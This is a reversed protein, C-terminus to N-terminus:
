SSKKESKEKFGTFIEGKPAYAYWYHKLSQFGAAQMDLNKIAKAAKKSVLVLSPELCLTKRFLYPITKIVANIDVSGNCTMREIVFVNRNWKYENNAGIEDMANDIDRQREPTGFIAYYLRTEAKMDYLWFKGSMSAQSEDDPNTLNMNFKSVPIIPDNINEPDNDISALQGNTRLSGAHKKQKKDPPNIHPYHITNKNDTDDLPSMYYKDNAQNIETTEYVSEILKLREAPTIKMTDAHFQENENKHLSLIEYHGNIEAILFELVTGSLIEYKQVIEDPMPGCPKFRVCLGHATKIANPTYRIASVRLAGNEKVAPLRNRSVWQRATKTKVDNYESWKDIPWTPVPVKHMLVYYPRTDADNDTEACDTDDVPQTLCICGDKDFLIDDTYREIGLQLGDDYWDLIYRYNTGTMETFISPMPNNIVYLRMAETTRQMIKRSKECLQIRLNNEKLQKIWADLTRVIDKECLMSKARFNALSEEPTINQTTM